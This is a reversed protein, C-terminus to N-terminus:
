AFPIQRVKAVPPLTESHQAAPAEAVLRAFPTIRIKVCGTELFCEGLRLVDLGVDAPIHGLSV